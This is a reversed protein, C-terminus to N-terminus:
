QIVTPRLETTVQKVVQNELNVVQGKVEQELAARVFGTMQLIVSFSFIANQKLLQESRKHSFITLIINCGYPKRQCTGPLKALWLVSKNHKVVVSLPSFVM